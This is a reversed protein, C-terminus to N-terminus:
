RRGSGDDSGSERVAVAVASRAALVPPVLGVRDRVRIRGMLVVAQRVLPPWVVMAVVGGIAVAVGNLVAVWGDGLWMGMLTWTTVFTVLGLLIRV